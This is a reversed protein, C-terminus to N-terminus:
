LGATNLLLNPTGGHDSPNNSIKGAAAHQQLWTRVTTYPADGYTAKYLAAAGAVFPSSFSTGACLGAQGGTWVCPVNQGPAYLDVCGGYSSDPTRQDASTSSAITTAGGASAPSTLCASATFWNGGNNGASAALFVGSAALRDAAANVSDNRLWNYSVNAVAPKVHHQAVWDMGAIAASVVAGYDGGCNNIKVAHLSVQKAVGVTSGGISGAVATGHGSCDSGDGGFADWAVDARGGFDPHGAEIGSDLVYAHVGAGTSNYAYTNNLPLDVQDIRDLAWGPDTQTAALAAKRAKAPAAVREGVYDQEIKAVRADGRLAALQAASLRAAFGNLVATYRYTPREVRSGSLVGDLPAGAKLTVIYRDAVAKGAPAQVVAVRPDPAAAAASTGAAILAVALVPAVFWSRQM